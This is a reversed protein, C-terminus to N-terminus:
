RDETTAASGRQHSRRDHEGHINNYVTNRYTTKFNRPKSFKGACTHWTKSRLTAPIQKSEDGIYLTGYIIDNPAYNRSRTRRYITTALANMEDEDCDFSNLMTMTLRYKNHEWHEPARLAAVRYVRAGKEEDAQETSVETARNDPTITVRM